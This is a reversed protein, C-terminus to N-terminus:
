DDLDGLKVLRANIPGRKDEIRIFERLLFDHPMQFTLEYSDGQPGTVGGQILPINAPFKINLKVRYSAEHETSYNGDYLVGLADAGVIRGNRFILLAFGQGVVGSLYAAYFGNISINM